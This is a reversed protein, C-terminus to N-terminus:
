QVSSWGWRGLTWDQSLMLRVPAANVNDRTIMTPRLKTVTPVTEGARMADISEIAREGMTRTDAQIVSDLSPSRDFPPWGALDFGVVRVSRRVPTSDLASLTGDVTTSMLALIADVDPHAKLTEEAVQQEHPVNFLGMRKEVIHIGPYNQALSREFARERIMIGTVDANMGLIAVTGRGHLLTAIRQAALEGGEGDDNVIYSLNSGGPVPLPSAIIVTPIGQAVARHVPSILSLAQDPALVLGQYRRDIVREVLAIQGEVDDERTPANWYISAGSRRAAVEAGVHAAEWM